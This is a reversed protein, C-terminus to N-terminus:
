QPYSAGSFLTLFTLSNFCIACVQPNADLMAQMQPNNLMMNRMMDPNNMMAEMMPSNMIQQMMEPSNMLQQTMRNIDGNGAAAGGLGGLAGLGGLGGMAFPNPIAGAPPSAITPSPASSSSPAAPTAPAPSASAATAAAAAGKVMHVTHGNEVSYSDLTLEDKLVRGKYILRQQAAPVSLVAAVREKLQLVTDTPDATVNATSSNSCKITLTIESM